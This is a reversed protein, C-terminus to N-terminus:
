GVIRDVSWYRRLVAGSPARAQREECPALLDPFGWRTKFTGVVFVEFVEEFVEHRNAGSRRGRAAAIAFDPAAIRRASNWALNRM